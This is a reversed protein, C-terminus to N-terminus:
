SDVSHPRCPIFPGRTWLCTVSPFLLSMTCTCIWFRFKGSSIAIAPIPFLLIAILICTRNYTLLTNCKRTFDVDFRIIWSNSKIEYSKSMKIELISQHHNSARHSLGLSKNSRFTTAFRHDDNKPCHFHHWCIRYFTLIHNHVDLSFCYFSGIVLNKSQCTCSVHYSGENYPFTYCFTLQPFKYFWYGQLGLNYYLFGCFKKLSTDHTTHSM